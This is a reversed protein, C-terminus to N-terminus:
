MVSCIVNARKRRFVQISPFLRVPLNYEDSKLQPHLNTLFLNSPM